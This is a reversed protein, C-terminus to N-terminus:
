KRLVVLTVPSTAPCSFLPENTMGYMPTDALLADANLADDEEFHSFHSRFPRFHSSSSESANESHSVSDPPTAHADGRDKPVGDPKSTNDTRPTAGHFESTGPQSDLQPTVVTISSDRQDLDRPSDLSRQLVQHSTATASSTRHHTIEAAAVVLVGLSVCKQSKRARLECEVEDLSCNTCPPGSKALSCRVKRDHCAKCAGALRKRAAQHTAARTNQRTM